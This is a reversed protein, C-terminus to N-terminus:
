VRATSCVAEKILWDKLLQPVNPHVRLGAEIEQQLAQVEMGRFERLGHEKDPRYLRVVETVCHQHVLSTPGRRSIPAAHLSSLARDSM